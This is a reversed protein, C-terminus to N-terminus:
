VINHVQSNDTVDIVADGRTADVKFASHTKTVLYNEKGKSDTWKPTHYGEKLTIEPFKNLTSNEKVDVVMEKMTDIGQGKIFQVRVYGEPTPINENPQVIVDGQKTATATFVKNTSSVVRGQNEGNGTWTATTYGVELQAEPFSDDGLTVNEKVHLVKNEPRLAKVGEGAEFTVKIYGKPPNNQEDGTKNSVDIIDKAYEFTATITGANVTDTDVIEPNWNAFKYDSDLITIDESTPVKLGLEKARSWTTGTKVDYAKYRNGAINAKETTDFIVREYGSRTPDDKNPVPIVIIGTDEEVKSYATFPGDGLVTSDAIAGGEGNVWPTGSVKYGSNPVIIPKNIDGFTKIAEPNVYVTTVGNLTSNEGPQFIVKTYGPTESNTQDPLKKISGNVTTDVTYKTKVTTDPNWKDLAYGTKAKVLPPNLVVGEESKPNVHYSTMGSLSAKDSNEGTLKFTVTVWGEPKTETGNLVDVKKNFLAKVTTDKFYVYDETPNISWAGFLYDKAPSVTPIQGETFKVPKASNVRYSLQGDTKAAITGKAIDESEFTVTSYGAPKDAENGTSPIIDAITDFQATTSTDATINEPLAPDWKPDKLKYGTKATITPATISSSATNPKVFYSTQGEATGKAPDVNFTVTYYGDPKTGGGSIVDDLKKFKAKITTASTYTRANTTWEKESEGEVWKEFVYGTNAKVIPPNLSVSKEPNVQYTTNGELSGHSADDVVFTVKSYGEVEPQGGIIVDASSSYNAVLTTDTTYTTPKYPNPNWGGFIYADKATIAPVDDANFAFEVNKLAYRDLSKATEAGDFTGKSTDTTFTVKAYLNKTEKDLKNYDDPKIVKSLSEFKATYVRSEVEDGLATIKPEWGKFTYGSKATVKPAKGSIDDATSNPAFYFKTITGDKVEGKEPDVLFHITSRSDPKEPTIGGEGEGPISKGDTSVILDVTVEQTKKDPTTVVVTVKQLGEEATSPAKNDKWAVNTDDPLETLNKIADSPNPVTGDKKVELDKGVPEVAKYTMTITTDTTFKGYPNKDRGNTARGKDATVTPTPLSVTKEPDVYYSTVQDKNDVKDFKGYTGASFTVKLRGEPRTVEDGNEDTAPIFGDKSTYLATLQYAQKVETGDAAPDWKDFTYGEKPSVAAGGLDTTLKAAVSSLTIGTNPTVEYRKSVGEGLGNLTGFKGPRFEVVVNGEAPDRGEDLPKIDGKTGNAKFTTNGQIVTGQDPAWVYGSYDKAPTATPFQDAPVKLGNKIRLTKNAPSIATVNEGVAFTVKSYGEPIEPNQENTIDKVDELYTANVVLKNNAKDDPNIKETFANQNLTLSEDKDWKHFSRGNETAKVEPVQNILDELTKDASIRVHFNKVKVPTSGVKYFEGKNGTNFQVLAFGESPNEPNKPDVIVDDGNSVYQATYTKASVAVTGEPLTPNWTSFKKTGDKYTANPVSFGSEKAEAWTLTDAVDYAVKKIPKTTDNNYYGFNGEGADFIIRVQNEDTKRNNNTDDNNEPNFPDAPDIPEVKSVKDIVKYPVSVEVKNGSEDTVVVTATKKNTTETLDPAFGEKFEYTVSPSLKESEGKADNTNAILDKAAPADADKTFVVNEKAIPALYQATYNATNGAVFADTDKPLVPQWGNHLKGEENAKAKPLTGAFDNWTKGGKVLYSLKEVGTAQNGDKDIGSLTGDGGLFNIRAYGEKTETGNPDTPIIDGENNYQAVFEVNNKFTYTGLDENTLLDEGLTDGEKAKWGKFEYNENATVTPITIKDHYKDTEAEYKANNSTISDGYGIHLTETKGDTADAITGNEGQNFTVKLQEQMDFVTATKYDGTVNFYYNPGTGNPNTWLGTEKLDKGVKIGQKRYLAAAEDSIQVDTSEFDTDGHTTSDGTYVKIKEGNYYYEYYENRGIYYPSYYNGDKPLYLNGIGFGFHQWTGNVTPRSEPNAEFRDQWNVSYIGVPRQFFNLKWVKGSPDSAYRQLDIGIEYREPAMVLYDSINKTQVFDESTAVFTFYNDISNYKNDGSLKDVKAVALEKIEHNDYYKDADILKIEFPEFPIDYTEWNVKAKFETPTNPIVLLSRFPSSNSRQSKPKEDVHFIRVTQGEYTDVKSTINASNDGSSAYSNIPISSMLLVLALIFKM